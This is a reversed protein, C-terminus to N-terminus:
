ILKDKTLADTIFGGRTGLKKNTSNFGKFTIQDHEEM